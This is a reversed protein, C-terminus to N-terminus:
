SSKLGTQFYLQKERPYFSYRLYNVANIINQLSFSMWKMRPIKNIIRQINNMESAFPQRFSDLEKM